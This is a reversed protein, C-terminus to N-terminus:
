LSWPSDLRVEESESVLFVAIGAANLAHCIQDIERRHNANDPLAVAARGNRATVVRMAKLVAKAVHDFVQNRNFESGYRASGEKSSGAGKAEVFLKQGNKVAVIDHGHETALARAVIVYGDDELVRCVAAVVADETLM